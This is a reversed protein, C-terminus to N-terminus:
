PKGAGLIPFVTEQLYRVVRRAQHWAADKEEGQTLIEPDRLGGVVRGYMAGGVLGLYDDEPELGCMAAFALTWCNATRFIDYGGGGTAVLRQSCACLGKVAAEYGNSTLRLHTLPDSILTDAGLQAVVIDPRYANLLPPVIQDFAYGYVEDDTKRALPVNVTFGRGRGEGIETELGTGPYFGDGSEHLSITLVRDEAIFRDQVGNGHHADIDVYAVRAGRAILSAIAIGVDNIYCFGEAHDTGAHHLGGILNFARGVVDAHVLEVCTMTAEAVLLCFDYIGQLVPCDPTGIGAALMELDHEGRSARKLIELYEPTHFLELLGPAAPIVEPRIVNRAYLLGYRNCLEMTNKARVPKFPHDDGFDFRSLAESYLFAADPM